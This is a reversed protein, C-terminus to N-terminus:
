DINLQLIVFGYNVTGVEIGAITQGYGTASVGVRIDNGRIIAGGSTAATYTLLIGRSGVTTADAFTGSAPTGLTNNLIQLGTNPYTASVGNAHIANWCRTINNNEIVVNLSSYSGTALTAGNTMVIGYNVQTSTSGSRSGILM